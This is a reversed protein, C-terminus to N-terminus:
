RPGRRSARRPRPPPPAPPPHPVAPASVPLPLRGFPPAPEGRRDRALFRRFHAQVEQRRQAIRDQWEAPGDGPQALLDCKTLVLFVPLGAVERGGGGGREMLGLVREVRALGGG